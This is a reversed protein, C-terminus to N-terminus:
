PTVWQKFWRAEQDYRHVMDWPPWGGHYNGPYRVMKAPIRQKKLATYMQEAESIPVRLDSEGDLLAGEVGGQVPELSAAHDGLFPALGVGPTLRLVVRQGGRAARV